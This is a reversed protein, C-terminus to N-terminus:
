WHPGRGEVVCQFPISAPRRYTQKLADLRAPEAAGVHQPALLGLLLMASWWAARGPRALLSCVKAFRTDCNPMVRYIEIESQFCSGGCM